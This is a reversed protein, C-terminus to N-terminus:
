TGLKTAAVEGWNVPQTESYEEENLNWGGQYLLCGM